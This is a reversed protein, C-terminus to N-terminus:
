KKGYVSIRDASIGFVKSLMFTIKVKTEANNGDKCVVAVGLIKTCNSNKNSTGEFISSFSDNTKDNETDWYIVVKSEDEGVTANIADTIRYSLEEQATMNAYSTKSATQTPNKVYFGIILILVIIIVFFIIEKHKIKRFKEKLKDFTSM